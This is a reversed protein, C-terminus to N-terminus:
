LDNNEGDENQLHTESQKQKVRFTMKPNSRM